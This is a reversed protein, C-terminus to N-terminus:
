ALEERFEEWSPLRLVPEQPGVSSTEFEARIGRRQLERFAEQRVSRVADSDPYGRGDIVFGAHWADGEKIRVITRFEREDVPSSM